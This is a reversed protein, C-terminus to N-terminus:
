GARTGGRGQGDASPMWGQQLGPSGQVKGLLTDSFAM